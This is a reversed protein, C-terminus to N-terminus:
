ENTEPVPLVDIPDLLQETRSCKRWDRINDNSFIREVDRSKNREEIWSDVAVSISRDSIAQAAKQVPAAMNKKVVRIIRTKRSKM